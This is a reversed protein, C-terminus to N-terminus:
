ELEQEMMLRTEIKKLQELVASGLFRNDRMDHYISVIGRQVFQDSSEFPISTVKPRRNGAENQRFQNVIGDDRYKSTSALARTNSFPTSRSPFTDEEEFDMTMPVFAQLDLATAQQTQPEM